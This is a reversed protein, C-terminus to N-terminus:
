RENARAGAVVLDSVLRARTAIGRRSVRTAACRVRADHYERQRAVCARTTISANGRLACADRTLRACDRVSTTRGKMAFPAALPPGGRDSLSECAHSASLSSSSSPSDSGFLIGRVSVALPFSKGAPRPTGGAARSPCFDIVADKKQGPSSEANGWGAVRTGDRMFLYATSVNDGLLAEGAVVASFLRSLVSGREKRCVSFGRRVCGSQERLYRRSVKPGASAKRKEFVFRYM